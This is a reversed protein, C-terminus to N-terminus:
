SSFRHVRPERTNQAEQAKQSQKFYYILACVCTAIGGLVAIIIVQMWTKSFLDALASESDNISGGIVHYDSSGKGGFPTIGKMQQPLLVRHGIFPSDFREMPPLPEEEVMIEISSPRRISYFQSMSDANLDVVSVANPALEPVSEYRIQYTVGEEKMNYFSLTLEDDTSFIPAYQRNTGCIADSTIEDEQLFFGNVGYECDIQLVKFEVKIFHGKKTSIKWRCFNDEDNAMPFDKSQIFRAEGPHLFDRDNSCDLVNGRKSNRKIRNQLGGKVTTSAESSQVFLSNALLFSSLKM